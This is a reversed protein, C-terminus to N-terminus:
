SILSLKLKWRKKSSRKVLSKGKRQGPAGSNVYSLGGASETVAPQNEPSIQAPVGTCLLNGTGEGAGMLLMQVSHPAQSQLADLGHIAKNFAGVIEECSQLLYYHADSAVDVYPLSDDLERALKCADLIQSLVEEM